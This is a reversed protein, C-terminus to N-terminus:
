QKRAYTTTMKYIMFKKNDRQPTGGSDMEICGARTVHEQIQTQIMFNWIEANGSQNYTATCRNPFM